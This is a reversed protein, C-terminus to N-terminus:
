ATGGGSEVPLVVQPNVGVLFEKGAGSSALSHLSDWWIYDLGAAVPLDLARSINGYASMEASIQQELVQATALAQQHRQKAIGTAEIVTQNKRQTAVMITTDFTVQMNDKYRESQTQNQKTSISELIASLFATPLGIFSIQVAEVQAYLKREFHEELVVEMVHEIYSKNAFFTYASYNCAANAIVAIATTEYVHHHDMNYALYLKHLHVPNYRYQFSVGLTLPLGDSTRTHLLEGADKTFELTQVTKPFKIFSHGLGLFFLGAQSFTKNDITLTIANYDLGYEVTPLSSFSMTIMIISPIVIFCTCVGCLIAGSHGPM